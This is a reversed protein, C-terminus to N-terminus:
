FMGDITFDSMTVLKKRLDELKSENQILNTLIHMFVLKQEEELYMEGYVNIKSHEEHSLRLNSLEDYDVNCQNKKYDIQIFDRDSNLELEISGEDERQYKKNSNDFYV